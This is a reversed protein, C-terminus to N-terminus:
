RRGGHIVLAIGGLVALSAIWLRWSAAEGILVIGGIATIVPVTLQVTAATSARLAPLVAYWIAYGLGSTLAGSLLALTVGRADMSPDVLLLGLCALPAARIFNGATDATPQASGRGVLSYIGWAVGALVMLGADLLPPQHLGPLLLWVLGGLALTLGTWGSWRWREGRAFATILMTLQVAGFLLLAGTAATLGRYAWAFSVAYGLLALAGLWSGAQDFPRRTRTLLWLVAAGALLRIATFSAPDISTQRLALRCLLANGAFALMTISVWLWLALPSSTLSSKSILPQRM